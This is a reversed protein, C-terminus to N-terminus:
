ICEEATMTERQKNTVAFYSPLQPNVPRGTAKVVSYTVSTTPPTSSRHVTTVKVYKGRDFCACRRENATLKIHLGSVTYLNNHWNICDDVPQKAAAKMRADYRIQSLLLALLGPDVLEIGISPLAPSRIFSAPLGLVASDL